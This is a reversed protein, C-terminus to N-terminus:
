EILVKIEAVNDKGELRIVYMGDTLSKVNIEQRGGNSVGERVVQGLNNVLSWQMSEAAQSCEIYLVDKAPNPYVQMMNGQLDEIGVLGDQSVVVRNESIYVSDNVRYFTEGFHEVETVPPLSPPFPPWQNPLSSMGQGVTFFYRFGGGFDSQFRKLLSNGATARFEVYGSTELNNQLNVWWSLGDGGEGGLLAQDQDTFIFEYCGPNLTLYQNNVTSSTFSPM